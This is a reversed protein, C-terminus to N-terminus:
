EIKLGVVLVAEGDIVRVLSEILVTIKGKMVKYYCCIRRYRERPNFHLAVTSDSDLIRFTCEIVQRLGRQMADEDFVFTQAEPNWHEAPQVKELTASTSTNRVCIGRIRSCKSFYHWPSYDLRNRVTVYTWDNWKYSAKETATHIKDADVRIYDNDFVKKIYIGVTSFGQNRFRGTSQSDLCKLTAIFETGSNWGKEVGKRRSLPFQVRLGRNTIVQSQSNTDGSFPVFGGSDAFEDPSQAFLGRWTAFSSTTAKWAFITEDDTVKIIEEQLRQFAYRGEGYLLPMNIDFIGLLSYALDEIRTTQRKAAWSMRRSVPQGFADGYILTEEPISTIGSLVPALIAKTGMAVWEKSFFTLRRPAILEQLTWGRTFWRSASFTKLWSKGCVNHPPYLTERLDPEVDSLYAYCVASRKYWRFMSNIAESLEASSSKQICCTDVWIHDLGARQAEEACKLIKWVGQSEKDQSLRPGALEEFTLEDNGWTHSLIAYPPANREDMFSQLQLTHVNLLRM